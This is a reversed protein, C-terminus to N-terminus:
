ARPAGNLVVTCVRKGDKEPAFLIRGTGQQPSAYREGNVPKGARAVQWEWIGTGGLGVCWENGHEDRHVCHLPGAAQYAEEIMAAFVNVDCVPVGEPLFSHVFLVEPLGRRRLDEFSATVPTPPVRPRGRPGFQVADM